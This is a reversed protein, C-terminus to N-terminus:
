AYAVHKGVAQPQEGLIQHDFLVIGVQRAPKGAFLVHGLLGKTRAVLDKQIGQVARAMFIKVQQGGTIKKLCSAAFRGNGQKLVGM